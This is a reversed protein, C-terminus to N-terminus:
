LVVWLVICVGIAIYAGNSISFVLKDDIYIELAARKAADLYKRM